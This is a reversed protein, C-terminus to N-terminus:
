ATALYANLPKLPNVSVRNIFEHTLGLCWETIKFILYVSVTQESPLRIM